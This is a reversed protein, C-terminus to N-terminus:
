YIPIKHETLSLIPSEISIVQLGCLKGVRCLEGEKEVDQAFSSHNLCCYKSKILSKVGKYYNKKNIWYSKKNQIINRLFCFTFNGM